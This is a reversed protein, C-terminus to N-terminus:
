WKPDTDYHSVIVRLACMVYPACYDCNYAFHVYWHAWLPQLHAHFHPEEYCCSVSVEDAVTVDCTVVNVTVGTARLDDITKKEDDGVVGRRGVLYLHRAGSLLNVCSNNHHCCNSCHRCHHCHRFHHCYTTMYRSHHNHRSNNTCHKVKLKSYIQTLDRVCAADFDAPTIITVVIVHDHHYIVIDIGLTVLHSALALGLGHVGGTILYSREASVTHRPTVQPPNTPDFKIIIKGIHKAAAM